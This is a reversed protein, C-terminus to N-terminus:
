GCHGMTWTGATRWVEVNRYPTVGTHEEAGGVSFARLREKGHGFETQVRQADEDGAAGCECVRTTGSHAGGEQQTGDWAALRFLM